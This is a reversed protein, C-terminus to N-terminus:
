VLDKEKDSLLNFKDSRASLGLLGDLFYENADSAQQLSVLFEDVALEPYHAEYVVQEVKFEVLL